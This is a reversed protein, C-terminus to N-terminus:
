YWFFITLTGVALFPGFPIRETRKKWGGILLGAAVIAGLVYAIGVAIVVDTPDMLFFGIGTALLVDGSGIWRGRSVLWQLGFFGGALVASQFTLILFVDFPWHAGSWFLTTRIFAALIFPINLADPIGGTRVDAIAICLLLGVCLVTLIDHMVM